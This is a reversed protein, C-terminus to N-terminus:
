VAFSFDMTVYLTLSRETQQQHSVKELPLYKVQQWHHLSVLLNQHKRAALLDFSWSFYRRQHLDQHKLAQEAVLM